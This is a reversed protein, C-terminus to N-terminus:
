EASRPQAAGAAVTPALREGFYDVSGLDVGLVRLDLAANELAEGCGPVMTDAGAVSRIPTAASELCPDADTGTPQAGLREQGVAAARWERLTPYVGPGWKVKWTDTSFYDNGQFRVATPKYAHESDILPAGDTVFINNRIKVNRLGQELRLAPAQQVRRPNKKTVVTNHYLNLNKVRAGYAVIGGYWPLKRSDNDSLNFRVTNDRHAGNGNASYILYGAGDNDFSLNYQLVSSSVNNDLGFGGGDVRSGTRNAYSVSRQIVMETSDYTWIGEPGEQAVASSQAGNHHSTSRDVLGGRVSGLVIGSGTNRTGARPDGPNEYAQIRVLKLKEHAYAPDDPEFDPGYTVLGADKNGHLKADKVTVNSFGTAGRGGGIRVGHRFRSVDVASIVVHDLKRDRPLDSFFRIGDKRAYSRADGVLVIGRVEIGATNHVSIGATGPAAITARGKGYSEIVVPAKASGADGAGITLTGRHRAGGKLRLRDGPKFRITDAQALTRWPRAPSLGDNEDDGDPSVYYTHGREANPRAPVFPDPLDCGAACILLLTVVGCATARGRRVPPPSPRAVSVYSTNMKRM